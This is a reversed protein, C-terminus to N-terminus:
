LNVNNFIFIDVNTNLFANDDDVFNIVPPNNTIIDDEKKCAYCLLLCSIFLIPIVKRFVLTSMKM